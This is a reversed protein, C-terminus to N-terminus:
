KDQEGGQPAPVAPVAPPAQGTIRRQIGSMNNAMVSGFSQMSASNSIWNSFGSRFRKMGQGVFSDDMDKKMDPTLNRMKEAYEKGDKVDMKWKTYQWTGAAGIVVLATGLVFSGAIYKVNQQGHMVQKHARKLERKTMPRREEEQVQMTEMFENIYQYRGRTLDHYGGAAVNTASSNAYPMDVHKLFDDHEDQVKTKPQYLQPRMTIPQVPLDEEKFKGIARAASVEALVDGDCEKALQKELKEKAEKMLDTGKLADRISKIAHKDKAVASDPALTLKCMRM